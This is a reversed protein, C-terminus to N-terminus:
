SRTDTAPTPPQFSSVVVAHPIERRLMKSGSISSLGTHQITQSGSPVATRPRKVLQCIGLTLISILNIEKVLQFGPFVWVCVWQTESLYTTQMTRSLQSSCTSLVTGSMFSEKTVSLRRTMNLAAKSDLIVLTVEALSHCEKLYSIINTWTQYLSLLLKYEM